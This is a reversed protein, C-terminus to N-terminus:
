HLIRLIDQIELTNVVHKPELWARRAIIVGYRLNELEGISHADSNITLKVGEEMARRAWIDDLDLRNPQSDIELIKGNDRAAKIVRELDIQHGERIGILRNTPHCIFDVSPHSIAKILRETLKEPSQRFGQHLSAGVIDFQDLFEREFDLSGDGRIEAEVGKLITFGNLRENLKEIIKWQEIFREKSLGNAIRSSISHDTIAIYSYGRNKCATVVEELTNSGDSWTTHIQLDCRVDSDRVLNPLSHNLAAQVEGRDERLEPPIYELGLAAYVEDESKGAVKKGNHAEFLGYENLRLGKKTALDRVAINHEKSGTFYMLAAGYEDEEFIRLDVQIGNKLRVSCRKTGSEIVQDVYPYQTLYKIAERDASLIDIDGITSKGRRLSGALIISSGLSNFYHEIEAFIAEAEPLLLRREYSRLKDIAKILSGKITESFEADLRGDEIARRLEEISRINYVTALRYATKPGIGQVKMLEPVSPPIKSELEQIYSSSGTRLFEDIRRAIGEGVYKIETLKGKKWIDEIDDKLNKISTAARRYAIVRYREEGSCELLFSIRELLEAVEANKM